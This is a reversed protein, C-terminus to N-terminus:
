GNRTVDEDFTKRLLLKLENRDTKRLGEAGRGDASSFCIEVHHLGEKPEHNVAFGHGRATKISRVEGVNASIFGVYCTQPSRRKILAEVEEGITHVDSHEPAYRRWVTSECSGSPFEFVVNWILGKYNDYMRPEYILRSVAEENAVHEVM